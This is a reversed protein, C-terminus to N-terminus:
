IRSLRGRLLARAVMVGAMERRYDAPGRAMPLPIPSRRRRTRCRAERTAPDLTAGIAAASADEALCRGTPSMPSRSPALQRRRRGEADAGGGCCGHAYDGIKRKLKEYAAGQGAPPIPIRVSALIEGSGLATDYAGNYFDRAAVRREGAVGELVYAADLAMMLAPM